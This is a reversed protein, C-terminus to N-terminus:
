LPDVAQRRLSTGKEIIYKGVYVNVLFTTKLSPEDFSVVESDGSCTFILLRM